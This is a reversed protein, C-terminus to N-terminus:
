NPSCASAPQDLRDSGQLRRGGIRQRLDVRVELGATRRLAPVDAAARGRVTRGRRRRDRRAGRADRRSRRGFRAAAAQDGIRARRAALAPPHRGGRCAGDGQARSRRGPRRRPRRAGRARRAAPASRAGRRGGARDRCLGQVPPRVRRARPRPASMAQALEHKRAEISAIRESSIQTMARDSARDPRAFVKRQEGSALIRSSRKAANGTRRRRHDLRIPARRM